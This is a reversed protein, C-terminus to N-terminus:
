WTAFVIGFQNDKNAAVTADIMSSRFVCSAARCQTGTWPDGYIVSDPWGKAGREIKMVRVWLLFPKKGPSATNIMVAVQGGQALEAEIQAITVGREFVATQAGRSKLYRRM